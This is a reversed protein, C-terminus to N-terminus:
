EWDGLADSADEFERLSKFGQGNLEALLTNLLPTHEESRGKHWPKDYLKQHAIRYADVAKRGDLIEVKSIEPM